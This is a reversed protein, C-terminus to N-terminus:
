KSFGERLTNRHYSLYIPLSFLCIKFKAIHCQLYSVQRNPCVHTRCLKLPAEDNASDDYITMFVIRSFMDCHPTVEHRLIDSHSLTRAM